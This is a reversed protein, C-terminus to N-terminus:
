DFTYESDHTIGGAYPFSLPGSLLGGPEAPVLFTEVGRSAGISLRRAQQRHRNAFQTAGQLIQYTRTIKTRLHRGPQVLMASSKGVGGLHSDGAYPDGHRRPRAKRLDRWADYDM